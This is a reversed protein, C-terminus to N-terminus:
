HFTCFKLPDGGSTRGNWFELSPVGDGNSLLSSAHKKLLMPDEYRTGAIEWARSILRPELLHLLRHRRDEPVDEIKLWLYAAPNFSSPDLPILEKPPDLFAVVDQEDLYARKGDPLLEYPKDDWPSSSSVSAKARKGEDIARSISRLSRRFYSGQGNPNTFGLHSPPTPFLIQRSFQPPITSPCNPRVRIM